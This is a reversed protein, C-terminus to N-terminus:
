PSWNVVVGNVVPSTTANAGKELYVIYRFYRKGNAYCATIPAPIGPGAPTYYSNSTGDPGVFAGDCASSNCANSACTAGWSASSSSATALQFKVSTGTPQTGNWMISNYTTGTSGSDFTSSELWGSAQASWVTTVGYSVTGCTNTNACNFSFWGVNDNWAWGQFNGTSDITVEYTPSSPCVWTSGNWTSGGSANGCFSIWGVNDNWAWGALNGNGDNTVQFNSTGCINGNPSTNCDLAVYGMSSSAYGSIGTSNVTVNGTSYFDVWGINDNWAWHNVSDINTSALAAHPLLLYAAGFLTFFLLAKAKATKFLRFTQRM